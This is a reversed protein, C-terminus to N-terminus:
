RVAAAAVAALTAVTLPSMPGFGRGGGGGGGGSNDGHPIVHPVFGRGGGGRGAVGGDSRWGHGGGRTGGRRNGGRSGHGDMDRSGGAASHTFTRDPRHSDPDDNSTFLNEDTTCDWRLTIIHKEDNASKAFLKGQYAWAQKVCDLARIASLKAHNAPTLDDVIVQTSGKLRYRNTIVQRQKGVSLDFM